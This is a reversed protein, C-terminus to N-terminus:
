LQTIYTNSTIFDQTKVNVRQQEITEKIQIFWVFSKPSNSCFKAFNNELKSETKVIIFSSFNLVLYLKYHVPLLSKRM